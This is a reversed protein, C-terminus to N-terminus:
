RKVKEKTDPAHLILNEPEQETIDGRDKRGEGEDPDGQCDGQCWRCDGLKGGKSKGRGNMRWQEALSLTGFGLNASAARQGERGRM